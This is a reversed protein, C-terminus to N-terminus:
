VSKEVDHGGGCSVTAMRSPSTPEHGHIAESEILLENCVVQWRRGVGSLDLM